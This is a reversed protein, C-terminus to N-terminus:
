EYIDVLDEDDFDFDFDFDDDNFYENEDFFEDTNPRTISTKNINDFTIRVDVSASLESSSISITFAEEEIYGDNNIIITMDPISGDISIDSVGLVDEMEDLQSYFAKMEDITPKITLITQDGKTTLKINSFTTSMEQVNYLQEKAENLDMELYTKMGSNDVYLKGDFYWIESSMDMGYFKYSSIVHYELSNDLANIIEMTLTMPLEMNMSGENESGYSFKMNMDMTATFSEMKKTKEAANSLVEQPDQKSQCGALSIFMFLALAGGLLQKMKKM